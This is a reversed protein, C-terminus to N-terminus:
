HFGDLFFKLISQIVQPRAKEAKRWLAKSLGKQQLLMRGPKRYRSVSNPARWRGRLQVEPLSRLGHYIDHSPGSHRLFHASLNLHGLGVQDAALKIQRNYQDLTLPSLLREWNSLRRKSLGAVVQNVDMRSATNLIVCDDFEGAKTPVGTEFLGVMLGWSKKSHNQRPPILHDMTLQFLERPRLYSDSQILIGCAALFHKQRCCQLAILDWLALDIGAKSKGPYRSKWGKLAQRSVPLKLKDPLHDRSKLLIWGFVTYSAQTYTAGDECLKHLYRCIGNDALSHTHTGVKAKSAWALFKGVADSYLELTKPKVKSAQLSRDAPVKVPLKM